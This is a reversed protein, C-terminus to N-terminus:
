WHCYSPFSFVIVGVLLHDHRLLELSGGLLSSQHRQGLQEVTLIPLLVAPFYLALAALAAAM